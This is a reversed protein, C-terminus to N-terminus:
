EYKGENSKTKQKEKKRKSTKREKEGKKKEMKEEQKVTCTQPMKYQRSHCSKDNKGRLWKQGIIPTRGPNGVLRNAAWGGGSGQASWAM